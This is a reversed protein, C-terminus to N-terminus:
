GTVAALEALGALQALDAPYLTEGTSPLDRRDWWRWGLLFQREVASLEQATPTFRPVRAAFYDTEQVLWSGAFAFEHRRHAIPGSIAAPVHGLEEWCERRVTAEPREVRRRGGGPTFWWRPAGPDAPDRGLLLLLRGDEDLLLARAAERHRVPLDASVGGGYGRELRVSRWRIM